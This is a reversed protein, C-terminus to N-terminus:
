KKASDAELELMAIADLMAEVKLKMSDRDKMLFEIRARFQEKEVAEDALAQRARELEGELLEKEQKLTRCLEVARHIKDELHSFKELGSLTM